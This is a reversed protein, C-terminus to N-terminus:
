ILTYFNEVLLEQLKPIHFSNSVEDMIVKLLGCSPIFHMPVEQYTHFFEMVM